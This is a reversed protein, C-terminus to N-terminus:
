PVYVARPSYVPWGWYPGPAALSLLVGLILLAVFLIFCFKAISAAMSGAANAGMLHAIIAVILFLLALGLM